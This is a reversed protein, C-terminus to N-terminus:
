KVVVKFSEGDVSVVAIGAPVAITENDSNVTENAVVKGLITAIVINKGEAGKVIVAGDTAVVSVAGEANIAENATPADLTTNDVLFVHADEYDNTVVPVNNQFKLYGRRITNDATTNYRTEIIVGERSEDVYRFAFTCVKDDNNSLDIAKKGNGTNLFLKDGTHVGDIFALRYYDNRDWIYPNTKDSGKYTVASDVLSVLFRGYTSDPAILHPVSPSNPHNDWVPEVHKANVALLYQPRYTNNRVYATDVFIAAKGEADDNNMGLFKGDEYLYFSPFQELSIKATDLGANFKMYETLNTNAMTIRDNDNYNYIGEMDALTGPQTAAYAKHAGGLNAHFYNDFEYDKGTAPDTAADHHGGWVVCYDYDVDYDRVLIYSGDEKEKVVFAYNKFLDFNEHANDTRSWTSLEFKKADDNYRLYKESFNEFLTYQYFQLTDKAATDISGDAKLGAYNTIHLLTDVGALGDHDIFDHTMEKVRFEIAKSADDTLIVNDDADKGIYATVGLSTEFSLYKGNNAENDMNFKVYGNETWGLEANKAEKIYIKFWENRGFRTNYIEYLDPTSTKRITWYNYTDFATEGSERNIFGSCDAKLLWQGEPNTLDIQEAPAFMKAYSDIDATFAKPSLVNGNVDTINWVKGAFAAWKVINSAGLQIYPALAGLQATAYADDDVDALMDNAKTYDITTLLNSKVGAVNVSSVFVCLGEENNTAPTSTASTNLGDPGIEGINKVDPLSIILSDTKNFDYSKFISFTANGKEFSSLGFAHESVTKFNYGRYIASETGNLTADADGIYDDSLTVYKGDATRLYFKTDNPNMRNVPIATLKGAFADAGVLNAYEKGNSSFNLEFGGNLESNLDAAGIAVEEIGVLNVNNLTVGSYSGDKIAVAEYVGPTIVAANGLLYKDTGVYFSLMVNSGSAEVYFENVLNAATTTATAMQIYGSANRSKDFALTWGEANTIKVKGAYTKGGVILSEGPALVDEITWYSSKNALSAVNTYVLQGNSTMSLFYSNDNNWTSGDNTYATRGITFYKGYDVTYKETSSAMFANEVATPTYAAYANSLLGGALLASVCLTLVKKNM